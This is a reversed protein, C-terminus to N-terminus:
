SVICANGGVSSKFLSNREKIFAKVKPHIEQDLLLELLDNLQFTIVEFGFSSQKPQNNYKMIGKAIWSQILEHSGNYNEILDQTGYQGIEATVNSNSKLNTSKKSNKIVVKLLNTMEKDTFKPSVIITKENKLNALYDWKSPILIIWGYALRSGQRFMLKEAGWDKDSLSSQSAFSPHPIQAMAKILEILLYLAKNQKFPLSDKLYNHWKKSLTLCNYNEDRIAQDLILKFCDEIQTLRTLGSM